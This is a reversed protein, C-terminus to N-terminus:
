FTLPLVEKFSLFFISCPKKFVTYSGTSKRRLLFSPPDEGWRGRRDEISRPPTGEWGDGATWRTHYLRWQHMSVWARKKPDEVARSDSGPGGTAHTSRAPRRRRRSGGSRDTRQRIRTLTM